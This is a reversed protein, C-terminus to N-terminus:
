KLKKEMHVMKAEYGMKENLALMNKNKSHVTTLIKHIDNQICWTELENKLATAVQHKRFNEDVYLSLIMLNGNQVEGWIFGITRETEAVIIVSEKKVMRNVTTIVDSETYSYHPMWLQPTENHWRALQRLTENIEPSDLVKFKM